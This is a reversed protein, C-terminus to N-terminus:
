PIDRIDQNTNSANCALPRTATSAIVEALECCAGDPTLTRLRKPHSVRM